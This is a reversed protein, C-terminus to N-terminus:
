ERAASRSQAREADAQLLQGNSALASAYMEQAAAWDRREWALDGLGMRARAQTQADSSALAKGFAERAGEPDDQKRRCVGIWYYCRAALGRPDRDAAVARFRAEAAAWDAALVLAEAIKLEPPDPTAPPTTRCGGFACTSALLMAVLTRVSLM